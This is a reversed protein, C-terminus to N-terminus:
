GRKKSAKKVAKVAKEALNEKKEVPTEKKEEVKVVNSSALKHGAGVYEDVRSEAVLFKRGTIGNIMEVM